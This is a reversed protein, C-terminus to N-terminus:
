DIMNDDSQCFPCVFEEAQEETKGFCGALFWRNCTDCGVTPEEPADWNPQPCM